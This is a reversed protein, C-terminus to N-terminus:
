ARSNSNKECYFNHNFIKKDISELINEHNESNMQSTATFRAKAEYRSSDNSQFHKNLSQPMMMEDFYERSNQNSHKFYNIRKHHDPEESLYINSEKNSELFKKQNTKNIKSAFRNSEVSEERRFGDKREIKKLYDKIMKDIFQDNENEKQFLQQVMKQIINKKGSGNESDTRSELEQYLLRPNPTAHRRQAPHIDLDNILMSELSDGKVLYNTKRICNENKTAGSALQPSFNILNSFSKKFHDQIDPYANMLMSYFLFVVKKTKLDSEKKFYYFQYVLQRNADMLKKNQKALVNLSEEFDESAKKMRNYEFQLNKLENSCEGKGNQTENLKRKVNSLRNLQGQVFDPNKFEHYGQQNKQKNFGYM